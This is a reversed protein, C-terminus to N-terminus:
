SDRNHHGTENLFAKGCVNSIYGLNSKSDVYEKISLSLFCYGVVGKTFPETQHSIFQEVEGKLLCFFFYNEAGDSKMLSSVTLSEALKM